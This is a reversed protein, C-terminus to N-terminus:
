IRMQHDLRNKKFRQLTFDVRHHSKTANHVKIDTQANVNMVTSGTSANQEMEAPIQNVNMITLAVIVARFDTVVSVSLDTIETEANEVMPM